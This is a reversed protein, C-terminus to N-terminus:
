YEQTLEQTYVYTYDLMHSSIFFSISVNSRYINQFCYGADQIVYQDIIPLIDTERLDDVYLFDNFLIIKGNNNGIYLINDVIVTQEDLIFPKNEPIFIQILEFKEKGSETCGQLILKSRLDQVQHTELRNVFM